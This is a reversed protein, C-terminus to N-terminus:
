RDKGYLGRGDAIRGALDLVLACVIGFPLYGGYGALPMEFLHFRQVYPVSYRWQAASGANWLEWFFGCFLAAAAPQLVPRWDGTALPSLLSRGTLIPQLGALLLLPALWLASFAPGPWAGVAALGASGAIVAAWALARSGQVAPLRMGELRPWTRLWAITAAIAPLVTSFPLTAQLFYDLDSRAVVGTYYWNASFRNLHEFLWWFGASLPFLFVFFAPRAC